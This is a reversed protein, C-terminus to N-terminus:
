DPRPRVPGPGGHKTPAATGERNLRRPPARLRAPQYGARPPAPALTPQGRTGAERQRRQGRCSARQGLAARSVARTALPAQREVGVGSLRAAGGAADADRTLPCLPDAVSAAPGERGRIRGM